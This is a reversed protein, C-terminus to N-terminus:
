AKKVEQKKQRSHKGNPYMTEGMVEQRYEFTEKESLNAKAM